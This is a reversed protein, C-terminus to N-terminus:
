SVHNLWNTLKEFHEQHHDYSAIPVFALSYGNLWSFRSGDLLDREPVKDGTELLQVFGSRWTDHIESWPKNHCRAFTVANVQNADEEWKEVSDVIWRPYAPQTDNVGAELRATSIQQWAWLHAVVDKISWDLDFEPTTLQEENLSRLLTEWKEFQERLAALIHGKMNM